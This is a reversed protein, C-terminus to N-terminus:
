WTWPREGQSHEHTGGISLGKYTLRPVMGRRWLCRRAGRLFYAVVMARRLEM